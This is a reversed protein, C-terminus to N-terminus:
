NERNNDMIIWENNRMNHGIWKNRRERIVEMNNVKWILHYVKINVFNDNKNKNMIKASM